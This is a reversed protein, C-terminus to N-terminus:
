IFHINSTAVGNEAPVHIDVARLRKVSLIYPSGTLTCNLKATFKEKISFASGDETLLERIQYEPIYDMSVYSAEGSLIKQTCEILKRTVLSSREYLEYWPYATLQMVSYNCLSFCSYSRYVQLHNQDVIEIVDGDEIENFVSQDCLLSLTRMAYKLMAVENNVGLGMQMAGEIFQLQGQVTRIAMDQSNKDLQLFRKRVQSSPTPLKKGLFFGLLTDLNNINKSLEDVADLASFNLNNVEPKEQTSFNDM